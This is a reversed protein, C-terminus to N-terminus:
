TTLAEWQHTFEDIGGKQQLRDLKSFFENASIGQFRKFFDNKFSNWDYFQNGAKWWLYWNYANGELYMSAYKIMDEDTTVNYINFYEETKNFWAVYQNDSGNYKSIEIKARPSCIM